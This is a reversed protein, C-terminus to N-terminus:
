QRRAQCQFDLFTFLNANEEIKSQFIKKFLFIDHLRELIYANVLKWVLTNTCIQQHHGKQSVFFCLHYILSCITEFEYNMTIFIIQKLKSKEDSHSTHTLGDEWGWDNPQYLALSLFIPSTPM